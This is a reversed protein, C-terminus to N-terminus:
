LIPLVATFIIANKVKAQTSYNQIVDFFFKFKGTIANNLKKPMNNLNNELPSVKRIPIATIKGGLAVGGLTPTGGGTIPKAAATTIIKRVATNTNTNNNGNSNSNNSSNVSTIITNNNNNNNNNIRLLSIPKINNFTKVIKSVSIPIPTVGKTVVGV